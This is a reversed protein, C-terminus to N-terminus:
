LRGMLFSRRLLIRGLRLRECLLGLLERPGRGRSTFQPLHFSVGLAVIRVDGIEGELRAAAVACGERLEDLGGLIVDPAQEGVEAAWVDRVVEGM